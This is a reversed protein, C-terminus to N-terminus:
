VGLADETFGNWLRRKRRHWNRSTALAMAQRKTRLVVMPPDEDPIAPAPSTSSRTGLKLSLLIFVGAILIALLLMIKRKITRRQYGSAVKLEKDAEKVDRNMNEVNYDIRDLMSGQDIVMTQLEQFINALEIIGQAIDEIERERQAILAENPDHRMRQQKTQLSTSQAFSRDADSEQMAPDNYPNQMPTSSRFPSAFGGLDKLKKLYASQKKRFMASVEGVRTALSIKLNQAMVEEGQNINGQQKAERVMTEIRKIAQQCRQFGRTIEQTLQEIEREERKKVDEDDFGPLIHKQHLQDLRRTQKAIEALQDTIEDQVDLWRPPLLDMEIVADGDDEYAGSSMLGQREESMRRGDGFGNTSSGGYRTKKQPHHSYSQRYSIFLNTRDRWM